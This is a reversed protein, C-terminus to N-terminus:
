LMDKTSNMNLKPQLKKHKENQINNTDNSNLVYMKHM